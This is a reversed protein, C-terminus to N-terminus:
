LKEYLCSCFSKQKININSLNDSNQRSKECCHSLIIGKQRSVSIINHIKANNYMVESIAESFSLDDMNADLALRLAPLIATSLFNLGLLPMQDTSFFFFFFNKECSM